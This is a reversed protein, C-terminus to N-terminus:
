GVQSVGDGDDDEGSAIASASAAQVHRGVSAPARNAAKHDNAPLVAEAYEEFAPRFAADHLPTPDACRGEVAGIVAVVAACDPDDVTRVVARIPTHAIRAVAHEDAPRGYLLPEPVCITM